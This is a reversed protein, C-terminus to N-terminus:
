HTDATLCGSLPADSPLQHSNMTEMRKERSNVGIGGNAGERKQSVGAVWQVRRKDQLVVGEVEISVVVWLPWVTEADGGGAVDDDAHPVRSVDDVGFGARKEALEITWSVDDIVDLSDSPGASPQKNPSLM